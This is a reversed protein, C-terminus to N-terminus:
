SKEAGAQNRVFKACAMVAAILSSADASGHGAIDFATGHDVAVRPYPLGLTINIGQEFGAHKLVPLGQDHYMAIVADFNKLKNPIFATDASLPGSLDLGQKRLKELVPIMIRIEEDGLLGQEGAHPNLGLVALRPAHIAFMSQLSRHVIDICRELGAPTIADPVDRLALHTTLLAVRMSPNALMMVVDCSSRQALFETTGIYAIGGANIVAKNIPGTVLGHCQGSICAQTAQSLAEIVSAANAPNAIGFRTAQAQAVPVLALEGVTANADCTVLKCPLGLQEAAQKITLPDAFCLLDAGHDEQILRVCLEPGVGAPEGAVLALRPRMNPKNWDAKSTPKLACSDYM